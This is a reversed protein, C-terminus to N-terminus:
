SIHVSGIDIPEYIEIYRMYRDKKGEDEDRGQHFYFIGNQGVKHNPDTWIRGVM